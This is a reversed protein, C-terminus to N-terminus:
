CGIRGLVALAERRRHPRARLCLGPARRREARVMSHPRHATGGRRGVQPRSERMPSGEPWVYGSEFFGSVAFSVLNAVDDAFFWRTELGMLVSRDGNFQRVPYGRLGREAGLRIQVGPDLRSGRILQAKGILLTKPQVGSSGSWSAPSSPTRGVIQVIAGASARPRSRSRTRVSRSDGASPRWFSGLDVLSAVSHSLPCASSCARRTGSISTKRLRSAISTRERSSVTSFRVVRGAAPHRFATAAFDGKMKSFDIDGTCVRVASQDGHGPGSPLARRRHFAPHAAVCRGARWLRLDSRAPRLWRCVLRMGWTSRLSYFPESSPVSRGSDTPATASLGVRPSVAGSYVPIPIRASRRTVIWDRVGEPYPLTERVRSFKARGPGAIWTLRNGNQEVGIQPQTSWSDDTVVRLKVTGDDLVVREIRADRIFGLARLNRETQQIAEETQADLLRVSLSCYRARSSTTERRPMSGIRRETCGDRLPIPSFTM